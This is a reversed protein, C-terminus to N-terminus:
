NILNARRLCTPINSDCILIAYRFSWTPLKSYGSNCGQKVFLITRLRQGYRFHFQWWTFINNCPSIRGTKFPDLISICFVIFSCFGSISVLPFHPTIPPAHMSYKTHKGASHLYELFPLKRLWDSEICTYCKIPSLRCRSFIRYTTREMTKQTRSEVFL